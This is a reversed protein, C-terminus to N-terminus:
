SAIVLIASSPRSTSSCPTQTSLAPLLLSTSMGFLHPPSPSSRLSLLVKAGGEQMVLLRGSTAESRAEVM